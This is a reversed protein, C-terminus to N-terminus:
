SGPASQFQHPRQPASQFQDPRQFGCKNCNLRRPWNINACKPCTWSGEPHPVGATAQGVVGVVGVSYGINSYLSSSGLGLGVRECGNGLGPGPGNNGLSSGNSASKIVDNSTNSPPNVSSQSGTMSGLSLGGLGSASGFGGLSGLGVLWMDSASHQGRAVEQRQKQRQEQQASALAVSAQSAQEVQKQVSSQELLGPKPTACGPKNCITRRPWNINACQPCQWSGVPNGDFGSGVAAGSVIGVM